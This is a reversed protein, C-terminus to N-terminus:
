PGERHGLVKPTKGLSPAWTTLAHVEGAWKAPHAHMKLWAHGERTRLRWLRSYGHGHAFESVAECEGLVSHTWQWTAEDPLTLSM